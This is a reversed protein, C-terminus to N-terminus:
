VSEMSRSLRYLGSELLNEPLASCNVTKLPKFARSGGYHLAKAVLSKGTGTEGTLLSIAQIPSDPGLPDPKVGSEHSRWRSKM